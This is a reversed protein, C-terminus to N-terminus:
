KQGCQWCRRKAAQPGHQGDEHGCEFAEHWTVFLDHIGIRGEAAYAAELQAADVEVWRRVVRRMPLTRSHKQSAYWEPSNM